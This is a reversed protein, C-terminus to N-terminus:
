PTVWPVKTDLGSRLPLHLRSAYTDSYDWERLLVLELLWMGILWAQEIAAPDSALIRQGQRERRQPHVLENRLGVAQDLPTAPLNPNNHLLALLHAAEADVDIDCESALRRFLDAAGVRRDDRIQCWPTRGRPGPWQEHLHWWAMLELGTFPLILKPELFGARGGEIRTAVARRAIENWDGDNFRDFFATIFRAVREPVYPDSPLGLWRIEDAAATVHPVSWDRWVEDGHEDYGAPILASTWSGRMFSFMVQLRSLLEDMEIDACLGEGDTRGLTGTHTIVFGRQVTAEQWLDRANFRRRLELRWQGTDVTLLDSLDSGDQHVAVANGPFPPFDVLMFHLNTVATSDGGRAKLVRGGGLDITEFKASMGSRILFRVAPKGDGGLPPVLRGESNRLEGGSATMFVRIQDLHDLEDVFDARLRPSPKWQVEVHVPYPRSVDQVDMQGEWLRLPDDVGRLLNEDMLSGLKRPKLASVM